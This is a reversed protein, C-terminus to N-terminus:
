LFYKMLEVPYCRNGSPELVVLTGRGEPDSILIWVLMTNNQPIFKLYRPKLWQFSYNKKSRAILTRVWRMTTFLLAVIKLEIVDQRLM